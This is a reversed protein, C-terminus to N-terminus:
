VRWFICTSAPRVNGSTAINGNGYCYIRRDTDDQGAVWSVTPRIAEPIVAADTQADDAAEHKTFTAYVMNGIKTFYVNGGINTLAIPGYEAYAKM